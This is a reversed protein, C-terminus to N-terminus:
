SGQQCHLIADNWKMYVHKTMNTSYANLGYAKVACDNAHQGTM